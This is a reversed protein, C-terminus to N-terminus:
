RGGGGGGGGGGCVCVCVSVCVCVCVRVCRSINDEIHVLFHRLSLSVPSNVRYHLFLFGTFLQLPATLGGSPHVYRPFLSMEEQVRRQGLVIPSIFKFYSEIM